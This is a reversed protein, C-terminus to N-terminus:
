PASLRLCAEGSKLVDLLTDVDLLAPSSTIGQYQAGRAQGKIDDATM